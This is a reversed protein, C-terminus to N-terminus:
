SPARELGRLLLDLLRPGLDAPGAPQRDGLRGASPNRDVSLRAAPDRDVCLGAAPQRDVSLGAAPQHDGSLGVAPQHDMVLAFGGLALFVDAPDLDSRLEGSAQGARLLLAVAGALRARTDARLGEDGSLVLHLVEAMGNKAAMFSLFRATWARLAAVPPLQGLLEPAADCLRQTQSRYVAEVLAERTPFHRYLTGIGVGAQAAVAKLTVQAGDRAFAAAATEVLKSYNQRADARPLREATM